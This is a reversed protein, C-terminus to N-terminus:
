GHGNIDKRGQLAETDLALLGAVFHHGGAGFVKLASAAVVRVRRPRDVQVGSQEQAEGAAVAARQVRQHHVDLADGIDLDRFFEDDLAIQLVRDLPNRTRVTGHHQARTQRFGFQPRERLRRRPSQPGPMYSGGRARMVTHQPRGVVLRPNEGDAVVVTQQQTPLLLRLGVPVEAVERGTHLLGVGQEAIM